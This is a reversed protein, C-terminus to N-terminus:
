SEDTQSVLPTWLTWDRTIKKFIKDKKIDM